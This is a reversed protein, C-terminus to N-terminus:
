AILIMWTSNDNITTVRLYKAGIEFSAILHWEPSWSCEACMDVIPVWWLAQTWIDLSDVPRTIPM